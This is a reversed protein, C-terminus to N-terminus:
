SNALKKDKKIINRVALRVNERSYDSCEIETSDIWTGSDSEHCYNFIVTDDDEEMEWIKAEIYGACLKRSIKIGRKPQHEDSDDVIGEVQCKLHSLNSLLFYDDIILLIDCIDPHHM